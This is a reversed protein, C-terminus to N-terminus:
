RLPGPGPVADMGELGATRAWESLVRWAALLEDESMVERRKGTVQYLLRNFHGPPQRYRADLQGALGQIADRLRHEVTSPTAPAAFGAATPAASESPPVPTKRAAAEFRHLSIFPVGFLGEQMALDRIRQTETPSLSDGSHFEQVAERGNAEGRIPVVLRHPPLGGIGPGAPGGDAGDGDGTQIPIAGVVTPQAARIAAVVEMFLKDAPAVVLGRQAEYPPGGMDVRQGRGLMQFLWRKSRIHTLCAIHSIAPVNLGEYAMQVTVLTDLASPDTHPLKFRRINEIAEANDEHVAIGTREMGMRKILLDRHARGAKVGQSVVLQKNRPNFHRSAQWQQACEELLREAFQTALATYVASPNDEDAVEDFSGVLHTPGVGATWELRADLLHFDLEKLAHQEVALALPYAIVFTEADTVERPVFTGPAGPVPAYEVWALRKGEPAELTGTMFVVLGALDILPQVAREWATGASIHHHEDLILVYRGPRRAFEDREVTFDRGVAQITNLHGILGRNPDLENTAIRMRGTHGFLKRFRPEVFDVEGQTLLTTRPVFWAIADFGRAGKGILEAAIIMAVTSKGTGPACILRVRRQRAMGSLLDRCFGILERQFTRLPM